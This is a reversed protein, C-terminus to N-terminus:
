SSNRHTKKRLPPIQEMLFPHPKYIPGGSESRVTVKRLKIRKGGTNCNMARKLPSKRSSLPRKKEAADKKVKKMQGSLHSPSPDRWFKGKCTKSLCAQSPPKERVGRVGGPLSPAYKGKPASATANKVKKTGNRLL